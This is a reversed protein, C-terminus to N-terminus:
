FARLAGAVYGNFDFVERAAVLRDESVLGRDLVFGFRGSPTGIALTRYDSDVWLVWWEQGAIVLRGPGSVMAVTEVPQVAGDLCLTGSVALGSPGPKFRLSGARCGGSQRAFGAAQVWDGAIQEPAFAAASWIPADTARFVSVTEKAACAALLVALALIM